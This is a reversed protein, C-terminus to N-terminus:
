RPSGTCPPSRPASGPPAASTGPTVTATYVGAAGATTAAATVLMSTTFSVTQGSVPNGARRRPPRGRHHELAPRRPDDPHRDRRHDGRRDLDRGRPWLRAADRPEDVVAARLDRADAREPLEDGAAPSRWRRPARPAPSPSRPWTPSTTPPAPSASCCGPSTGAMGPGDIAPASLVCGGGNRPTTAALPAMTVSGDARMVGYLLSARRPAAPSWPRPTTPPSASRRRRTVRAAATALEGLPDLQRRAGCRAGGRRGRLLDPRRRRRPRPRAIAPGAALRLGPISQWGDLVPLQLSTRAHGRERLPPRPRSGPLRGLADGLHPRSLRRPQRRLHLRPEREVAAALRDRGLTTSSATTSSASRSRPTSRPAPSVAPSGDLHHTGPAGGSGDAPLRRLRRARRDGTLRRRRHRPRPDPRPPRRLRHRSGRRAPRRLQRGRRVGRPRPRRRPPRDPRRRHAAFSAGSAPTTTVAGDPRTNTVTAGLVAGTPDVTFNAVEGLCASGGDCGAYGGPVTLQELTYTRTGSIRRPSRSSRAARRRPAPATAASPPAATPPTSARSPGNPVTRVTSAGDASLSLGSGASRRGAPTSPRSGSRCRPPPPRRRLPPSSSARPWRWPWRWWPRPPAGGPGRTRGVQGRM